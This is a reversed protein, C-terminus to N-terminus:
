SSSGLHFFDLCDIWFDLRGRGANTLNNRVVRNQRMFIGPFLITGMHLGAVYEGFM